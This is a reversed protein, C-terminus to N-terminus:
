GDPAVRVWGLGAATAGGRWFDLVCAAVGLVWNENPFIGELFAMQLLYPIAISETRNDPSGERDDVSKIAAKQESRGSAKVL